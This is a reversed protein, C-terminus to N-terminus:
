MTPTNKTLTRTITYTYTFIHTHKCGRMIEVIKLCRRYFFICRINVVKDVKGCVSVDAFALDCSLPLLLWQVWVGVLDYICVVM